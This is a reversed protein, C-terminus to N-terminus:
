EEPLAQKRGLMWANARVGWGPPKPAKAAELLAARTNEHAPVGTKTQRMKERSEPNGAKERGRAAAEEPVGTYIQLIRTTGPTVRGVGLAQRWQWVKVQGVGWHHMISKASENRVARALEDTLILSARGAKKRRPWSIPGETWGGVEVLGNIEDDIWDGIRVAPPHYPGGLLPPSDPM